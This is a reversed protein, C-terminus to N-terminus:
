RRVETTTREPFKQGLMMGRSDRGGLVGQASVFNRYSCPQVTVLRYPMRELSGGAVADLVTKDPHSHHCGRGNSDRQLRV